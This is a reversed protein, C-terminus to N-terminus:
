RDVTRASGELLANVDARWAVPRDGRTALALAALATGRRVGAELDGDIVGDLVGAMFADGAGIRDVVSVGIAEVHGHDGDQRWWAGEASSTVVTRVIGFREALLAAVETPFGTVGFLDRADERTCVVLDAGQIMSAIATSAREPEWLKSRYNVDVSLFRSGSRAREVMELTVELCTRSLAPTIGTLHVISSDDFTDWPVDDITLRSAASDARDYIVRTPFPDARLEVFYTGMRAEPDMVVGSCDVGAGRLDTIVKGGLPGSPLRSVWAVSRDLRALSVAVNAETGAVHVDLSPSTELTEGAPVSLRLMAEGLTFVDRMPDGPVSNPGPRTPRHAAMPSAHAETRGKPSTYYEGGFKIL